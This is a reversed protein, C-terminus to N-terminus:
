KKLWLKKLSVLFSYFGIGTILEITIVLPFYKLTFNILFLSAFFLSILLMALLIKVQKQRKEWNRILVISAIVFLPFEWFPLPSPYYNEYYPHPALGFIYIPDTANAFSTFSNGILVTAKNFFARAIFSRNGNHDSIILSHIRADLTSDQFFLNPKQKIITPTLMSFYLLITLVLYLGIFLFSPKIAPKM